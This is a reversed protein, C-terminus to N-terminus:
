LLIHHPLAEPRLLPRFDDLFAAQEFLYLAEALHRCDILDQAAEAPDRMGQLELNMLRPETDAHSAEEQHARGYEENDSQDDVEEHVDVPNPQGSAGGGRRNRNPHDRVHALAAQELELLLEGFRDVQNRAGKGGLRAAANMTTLGSWM